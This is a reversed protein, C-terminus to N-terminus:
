KLNKARFPERFLTFDGKQVIEAVLKTECGPQPPELSPIQGGGGHMKDRSTSAELVCLFPEPAAVRLPPRIPQESLTKEKTHTM